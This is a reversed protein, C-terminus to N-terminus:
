WAQNRWFIQRTPTVKRKQLFCGCWHCWIHHVRYLKDIWLIEQECVGDKHFFFRRAHKGNYIYISGVQDWEWRLWSCKHITGKEIKRSDLGNLIWLRNNGCGCIMVISFSVFFGTSFSFAAWAGVRGGVLPWILAFINLSNTSLTTAIVVPPAPFFHSSHPPSLEELWFFTRYFGSADIYNGYKLTKPKTSM